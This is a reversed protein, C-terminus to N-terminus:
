NISRVVGEIPYVTSVILNLFKQLESASANSIYLVDKNQIPFIQTLFFSRPDRLNIRYVVPVRGDATVSGSAQIGSSPTELRFLFVGAADARADNLGGVRALAQALTIGKAEYNIEDSRGTAGLATFSLTQFLAAVVDGAQLRINQMPDRILTDLPLVQTVTGRTLQLSVKDISDKPGGSIALADLLREGRPTLPVRVGASVDGVVTAYATNNAALRVLVQPQNAKGSLRAAIDSGIAQVTRGRVVIDGAFPVSIRGDNNVMQQPFTIASAVSTTTSAGANFLVAPPAEWVTVELVDGPSIIQDTVAGQGFADSFLIPHNRETLQMAVDADIDVIKFRNKEAERAVQATAPGSHPLTQCGALFIVGLALIMKTGFLKM